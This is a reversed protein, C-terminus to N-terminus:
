LCIFAALRGTIGHDRRYSFFLEPESVTCRSITEIQHAPVGQQRAQLANIAPLNLRAKEGHFRVLESDNIPIQEAFAAVVEPGVEFQPYSIGAGIAIQIHAPNCGFEQQMRKLAATVIQQQTGRWGAHLAAIVRQVPDAILVPICDAVMVMLPIGPVNTILGDTAPFAERHDHAGRGRDSATVTQITASHVQQCAVVAETEFGIATAIRRRNEAVQTHTEGAKEAPEAPYKLNLSAFPGESIGGVRSSFGHKLGPLQALNQTQFYIVGQSQQQQEFM